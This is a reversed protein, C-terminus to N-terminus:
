YGELVLEIIKLIREQENKDRHRIDNIVKLLRGDMEDYEAPQIYRFFEELTIQFANTIKTLVEVSCVKEAREIKGIYTTHLGAQHGLEEQSWGRKKRYSRITQGILVVINDM